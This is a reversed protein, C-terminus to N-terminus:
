HWASTVQGCLDINIYKSFLYLELLLHRGIQTESGLQLSNTIKPSLFIRFVECYLGFEKVCIANYDDVKMRKDKKYSFQKMKQHNTMKKDLYLQRILTNTEPIIIYHQINTSIAFPDGCSTQNVNTMM